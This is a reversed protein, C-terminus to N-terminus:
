SSAACNYALDDALALSIFNLQTIEILLSADNSEM